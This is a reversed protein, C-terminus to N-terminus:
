RSFSTQMEKQFNDSKSYLVAKWSEINRQLSSFNIGVVITDKVSQTFREQYNRVEAQNLAIDATQDLKLEFIYIINELEVVLDIRGINTSVEAFVRMGSADLFTFFVAQFFGEKAKQFTEYPIKAFQANINKVFADLNVQDLTNVLNKANHMIAIPDTQVFDKLLSQLFARRVEKNPLGLKYLGEEAICEHVTLYGTQFMLATVDIATVDSLDALNGELADAQELSVIKEPRKKLEDLLFTPTGTSYWFSKPTKGLDLYRLTSYPNYVFTNEGTFRYGDYWEKLNALVGERSLEDQLAIKQIHLDFNDEIEKQTYGFMDAYRYDMSIDTINNAGSFLSVQSFRSVGTIFVFRMHRDLSKLMGFFIKLIDRNKEAIDSHQLNNIIARDYEDVLVVVKAQYKSELNSILTRLAEEITFANISVDEDAALSELRQKLAAEFEKPNRSAINTFDFHLVPYKQWSYSSEYIHCGKFLEKNGKFVEKLTNIFLSKGFRRPRSIFYYHADSEILRQVFRTKDVYVYEGELIKELDQIGIPLKKTNM